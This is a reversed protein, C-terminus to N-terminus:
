YTTVSPHLQSAGGKCYSADELSSIRPQSAGPPNSHMCCQHLGIQSQVIPCSKVPPLQYLDGIAVISVMGFDYKTVDASNNIMCLQSNMDAVHPSGVMSIEDCALVKLQSLYNVLIAKKEYSLHNNQGLQLAAHLTLEGIQFAASGTPATLLILPKDDEIKTQGYINNNLLKFYNVDRHILNICHSKGTGGPGSLFVKYPQIM